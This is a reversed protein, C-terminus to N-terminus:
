HVRVGKYFVERVSWGSKLPIWTKAQPTDTGTLAAPRVSPPEPWASVMLEVRGAGCAERVQTVMGDPQHLPVLSMAHASMAIALTCAAVALLRIM